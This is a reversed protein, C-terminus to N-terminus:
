SEGQKTANEKAELAALLDLIRDPVPEAMLDDYYRRLKSGILLDLRAEHAAALADESASSPRSTPNEDSM